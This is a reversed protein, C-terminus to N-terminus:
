IIIHINISSPFSYPSYWFKLQLYDLDTTRLRQSVTARYIRKKFSSPGTQISVSWSTMAHQLSDLYAVPNTLAHWNNREYIRSHQGRPALFLSSQPWTTTMRVHKQISSYRWCMTRCLNGTFQFIAHALTIEVLSNANVSPLPPLSM